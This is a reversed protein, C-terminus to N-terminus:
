DAGNPTSVQPASNFYRPMTDGRFGCSGIHTLKSRLDLWIEGGLDRWRKCLAYDESLYEGTDPDIMPDFFAYQHNTGAACSIPSHNKAFALEPHATALREFVHRKILQFGAGAYKATAFQQEVKLDQGTCLIGVYNLGATDAAEGQGHFTRQQPWDIEKLPYMAAAFDKDANFLREFQEPSFEIDSDIFMLHTANPNELFQAVLLARARTILSDNALLLLSLPITKGVTNMLRIVSNM